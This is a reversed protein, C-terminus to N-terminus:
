LRALDIVIVGNAGGVAIGSEAWQLCLLPDVQLYTQHDARNV